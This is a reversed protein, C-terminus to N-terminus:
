GYMVRRIWGLLRVIWHPKEFSGDFTSHRRDMQPNNRNQFAERATRPLRTRIEDNNM